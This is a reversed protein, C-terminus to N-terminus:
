PNRGAVPVFLKYIPAATTTPTLSATSTHTQTPIPTPTRTPRPTTTSSPTASPTATASATASGTPSATLTPSPTSTSTPTATASPTSTPTSTSTPTPTSTSTPTATASPTSTPTSTSTPTPTSDAAITLVIFATGVGGNDDTVSLTLTYIATSGYSHTTTVAQTSQAGDGFDWSYSFTDTVGPDTITSSFTLEQGALANEFGHLAVIPAVNAGYIHATATLVDTVLPGSLVAPAGLAENAGDPLIVPYTITVSQAVGLTLGTALPNLTPQISGASAPSMVPMGALSLEAPLLSSLSPLTETQQTTNHIQITYTFPQGEPVIGLSAQHTLWLAPQVFWDQTFPSNLFFGLLMRGVKEEGIANPHANEFDSPLWVLGDSRPNPGDAWTYAAWSIWPATSNFDLDGAIPDIGGGAMQNIQAEILWKVAFGTEYAFPEPHIQNPGLCHDCSIRSSFYIQQLNPYRVRLARAIDGMMELLQFAEANSDPLSVDPFKTAMKVWVVQVQAETLDYIDLDWDRIRDYNSDAPDTWHQAEQGADAGNIFQIQENVRPHDLAKGM